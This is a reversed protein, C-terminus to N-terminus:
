ANLEDIWNNGKKPFMAGNRAYIALAVNVVSLVICKDIKAANWPKPIVTPGPIWAAKVGSLHEGLLSSSKGYKETSM